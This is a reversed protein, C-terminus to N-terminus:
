GICEMAPSYCSLSNDQFQPGSYGARTKIRRSPTFLPESHGSRAQMDLPHAWLLLLMGSRRIWTRIGKEKQLAWPLAVIDASQSDIAETLIEKQSEIPQENIAPTSLDLFCLNLAHCAEKGLSSKGVGPPGALFIMSTKNESDSKM